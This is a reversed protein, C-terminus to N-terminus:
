GALDVIRLGNAGQADFYDVWFRVLSPRDIRARTQRRVILVDVAVGELPARVRLYYPTQSFSQFPQVGRYLSFSRTHQLLDTVLVLRLPISDRGPATLANVAVWQISEMIPSSDAEGPALMGALVKELPQRFGERWKREVLRPNGTLESIEDARGPNCRSFVPQPPDNEVSGVAYIELAGFRPITGVLREIENTLDTRQVLNLADTTDIIIATLAHPGAQPCYTEPDLAVHEERTELFLLVGGVIAALVGAMLALGGAVQWASGSQGRSRRPRRRPM